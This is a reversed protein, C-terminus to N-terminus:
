EDKGARYLPFDITREVTIVMHHVSVAKLVKCAKNVEAMNVVLTLAAESEVEL